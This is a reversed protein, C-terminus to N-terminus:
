HPHISLQRLVDRLREPCQRRGALHSARRLLVLTPPRGRFPKAETRPRHRPREVIEPRWILAVLRARPDHHEAERERPPVARRHELLSSAMMSAGSLHATTRRSTAREAPQIVASLASAVSIPATPQRGPAVVRAAVAHCPRANPNPSDITVSGNARRTSNRLVPVPVWSFEARRDRVACDAAARRDCSCPKWM